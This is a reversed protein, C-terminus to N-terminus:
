DVIYFTGPFGTGERLYVYFSMCEYVFTDIKDGQSYCIIVTPSQNHPDIYISILILPLGIVIQLRRLIPFFSLMTIVACTISLVKKDEVEM